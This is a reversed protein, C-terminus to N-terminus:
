IKPCDSSFESQAIQAGSNHPTAKFFLQDVTDYITQYDGIKAFGYKEYLGREGSLVFIGSYGQQGACDCAADTLKESIRQGRYKEDVFMFGIFPTFDLGKPLEDRNAYTCFGVIRHDQIAALVRENPEFERNRMKSALYSGARWSCNEAFEMTPNWLEHGPSMIIIEVVSISRKRLMKRSM